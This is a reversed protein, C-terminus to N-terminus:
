HGRHRQPSFESGAECVSFRAFEKIMANFQPGTHSPEVIRNLTREGSARVIEGKVFPYVKEFDDLLPKAETVNTSTYWVLKGEKKAGEVLKANEDAQGWAAARERLLCDRM